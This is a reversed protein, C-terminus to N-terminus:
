AAIPPTPEPEAPVPEPPPEGGPGGTLPLAPMLGAQPVLQDIDLRDGSREVTIRLLEELSDALSAPDAGRLQAIQTVSQQLLPLLTAWAQREASTNPKGSSGARIEISVMSALSEPGRWEPWLASDGVMARVDDGDMHQQACEATYTAFDTLMDEVADRMSGTRAQFGTQQIQAETATKTTSISQSLAEQIGWIRELEGVIRSRDYLGPDMAPYSSPLFLRHLDANPQTTQVGVYEGIAASTVKTMSEEGVQGELFLMHPQVRRRHEAEASGIRNYEDVLKASRTVLSQPHRQGDTEGIALLFFPYFRSTASPQMPPKAWCDLGHIGTLISNTTRDWIEEVMVYRAQDESGETHHEASVFGDADLADTSEPDALPSENRKPCPKRPTYKTLKGAQEDTLRFEAKADELLMPVRHSIWPADLYNALDVGPAVTTDEAPVFDIAFGRAVVREVQGELAQLQREYEAQMAELDDGSAEELDKRQQVVRAINDKLDNIQHLIKPDSATREQWSAKLWGVAITLSSRVMTRARQKIKGDLWLRSVVLELTESFQKEHQQRRKYAWKIQEVRQMVLQERVQAVADQAAAMGAQAPNEGLALGAWSGAQGAQQQAMALAQQAKPDSDVFVQAAEILSEDDPLQVKRTPLVDVDPNKAYLFAVLIDIFTGILNADVEFGSDGRAYRRDVAYQKRAAEDFQRAAKIRGFWRKTDAKEKAYGPRQAEDASAIGQEVAQITEDTM